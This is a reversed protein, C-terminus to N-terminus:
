KSRPPAVPRRPPLRASQASLNRVTTKSDCTIKNNCTVVTSSAAAYQRGLQRSHPAPAARRCLLGIFCEARRPRWGRRRPNRPTLGAASAPADEPGPRRRDRAPMLTAVRRRRRPATRERSARSKVPRLGCRPVSWQWRDTPTAILLPRPTAGCGPPIAPSLPPDM